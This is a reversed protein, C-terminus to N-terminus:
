ELGHEGFGFVGGVCKYIPPMGPVRDLPEYLPWMDPLLSEATDYGLIRLTDSGVLRGGHEECHAKTAHYGLRSEEGALPVGPLGGYRCAREDPTTAFEDFNDADVDMCGPVQADEVATAFPGLLLLALLAAPLPLPLLGDCAHSRPM